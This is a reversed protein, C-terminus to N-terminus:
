QRFLRAFGNKEVANRYFDDISEIKEFDFTVQKM